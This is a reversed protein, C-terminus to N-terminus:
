SDDRFRVQEVLDVPVGFEDNDLSVEDKSPPHITTGRWTDCWPRHPRRSPRSILITNRKRVIQIMEPVPISTAPSPTADSVGMNKKEEPPPPNDERVEDGNTEKPTDVM